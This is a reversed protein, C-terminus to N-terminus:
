ESFAADLWVRVMLGVGGLGLVLFTRNIAQPSVATGESGLLMQAALLALSGSSLSRLPWHAFHWHVFTTEGVLMAALLLQSRRLGLRVATNRRGKAADCEIDFTQIWLQTRLVLLAAHVWSRLPPYPLASLWCSLPVVLIYGCPCVLDLPAYNGSLRPGFNYLWNVGFVAALWPLAIATRCLWSFILLFPLQLLAAPVIAARLRNEDEKAGLLDGGKRPNDADVEVDALDNMLYCMLNLPLTSYALGVLFPWQSLLDVRGGTPLLYLWLTVLWYYPRSIRLCLRISAM